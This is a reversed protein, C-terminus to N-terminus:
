QLNKFDFYTETHTLVKDLYTFCERETPTTFLQHTEIRQFLVFRYSHHGPERCADGYGHVHRPARPNIDRTQHHRRAASRYRRADAESTSDGNNDSFIM